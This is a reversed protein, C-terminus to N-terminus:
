AEQILFFYVWCPVGLSELLSALGVYLGKGVSAGRQTGCVLESINILCIESSSTGAPLGARAGHGQTEEWESKKTSYFGKMGQSDM